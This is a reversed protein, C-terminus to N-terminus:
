VLPLKLIEFEKLDKELREKLIVLREKEGNLTKAEDKLQQIQRNEKELLDNRVELRDLKNLLDGINMQPMSEDSYEKNYQEITLGM